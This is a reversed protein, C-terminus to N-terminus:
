EVYGLEKLQEVQEDSLEVAESPPPATAAIRMLADLLLRQLDRVTETRERVINEHEGPDADLDFLRADGGEASAILKYRGDNVSSRLPRGKIGSAFATRPTRAGPSSRVLRGLDDGAATAPTEGGAIEMLTPFLDVLRVLDPVRVGRRGGDPLRILLPVHLQHEYLSFGHDWSGHDFLEEGHDSTVVVVTNPWRRAGRLREFFPGLHRDAEHVGAAYRGRWTRLQRGDVGRTWKPRRLYPQIHDFETNTLRQPPGLGASEWVAHYDLDPSLYPGHVDMLHLYLFFPRSSGMADELWAEAPELVASAPRSRVKTASADFSDFGQEFGLGRAIFPNAVFAGTRYGEENLAEALTVATEPIAPTWQSRWVKYDRPDDAALAVGHAQPLLSTMMSAMSPTTWPAQASCREFLISEAALEDINPSIEGDFGYCGLYDARLTDVVILVISPPQVYLPAFRVWAAFGLAVLSLITVAWLIKKM